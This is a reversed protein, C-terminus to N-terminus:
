FDVLKKMGPHIWWRKLLKTTYEITESNSHVEINSRHSQATIKRKKKKKILKIHM